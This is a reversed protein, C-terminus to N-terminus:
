WITMQGYIYDIFLSSMEQAENVKVYNQCKSKHLVLLLTSNVQAM